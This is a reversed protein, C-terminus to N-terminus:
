CRTIMENQWPVAGHESIFYSKFKDRIVMANTTTQNDVSRMNQLISNSPLQLNELEDNERIYNHLCTCALVMSDLHMPQMKIKKQFVEFKQSLIGFASEVLRRARSLRYNFIKKEHNDSVQNGPYPRMIHESLPFAEDGVFVHPMEEIMGPLRKNPPIGITNNQLRQGFKSSNLIGSDSNRGYAGIDVIIFKCKADVVALLVTSFYKKYNFYLSGSNWPARINVHKGDIAGICNPFNWITRFEEEIKTWLEQTPKPMVLPQLNKWIAACVEHVITLVTSYGVRYSQGLAQCSIATTLFRYCNLFYM